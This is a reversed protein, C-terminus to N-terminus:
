STCHVPDVVYGWGDTPVDEPDPSEYDEGMSEMCEDCVYTYCIHDGEMIYFFSSAFAPEGEDHYENECMQEPGPAPVKSQLYDWLDEAFHEDIEQIVDLDIKLRKM